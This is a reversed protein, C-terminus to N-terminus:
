LHERERTTYQYYGISYLTCLTCHLSSYIQLARYGILQNRAWFSCDVTRLDRPPVLAVLSRELQGSLLAHPRVCREHDKSSEVKQHGCEEYASNKNVRVFPSEFSAVANLNYQLVRNHFLGYTNYISTTRHEDCTWQLLQISAFTALAAPKKSAQTVSSSTVNYM